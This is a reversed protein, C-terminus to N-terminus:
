GANLKDLIDQLNLADASDEIIRQMDQLALDAEQNEAGHCRYCHKEMFVDITKPLEVEARVFSPCLGLCLLAILHPHFLSTMTLVIIVELRRARPPRGERLLTM